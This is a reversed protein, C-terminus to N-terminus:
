TLLSAKACLDDCKIVHHYPPAIWTRYPALLAQHIMILFGKKCRRGQGLPKDSLVRKEFVQHWRQRRRALAQLQFCPPPISLISQASIAM